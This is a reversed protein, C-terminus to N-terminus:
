EYTRIYVKDLIELPDYPPFLSRLSYIGGGIVSVRRAVSM